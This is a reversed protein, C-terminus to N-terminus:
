AQAYEVAQGIWRAVLADAARPDHELLWDAAQAVKPMVEADRVLDAVRFSMEGTQRTGVVEGPGRLELDKEAIRFGDNTERMVALRERALPSLPPQWVLV